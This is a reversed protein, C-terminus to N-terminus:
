LYLYFLGSLSLQNLQALDVALTCVETKSAAGMELTLYSILDRYHKPAVTEFYYGCHEGEWAWISRSKVIFERVVPYAGNRSGASYRWWGWSDPWPRIAQQANMFDRYASETLAWIEHEHNDPAPAAQSYTCIADVGLGILANEFGPGALVEFEKDECLNM